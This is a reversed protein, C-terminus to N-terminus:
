FEGTDIRTESFNLHDPNELDTFFGKVSEEVNQTMKITFPLFLSFIKVTRYTFALMSLPDPECTVPECTIKVRCCVIHEVVCRAYQRKIPMNCCLGVRMNQGCIGYGLGWITQM